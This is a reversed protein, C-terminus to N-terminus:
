PVQVGISMTLTWAISGTPHEPLAIARWLRLSWEYMPHWDHTESCLTMSFSWRALADAEETETDYDLHVWRSAPWNACQSNDTWQQHCLSSTCARRRSSPVLSKNSERAPITNRPLGWRRSLLLDSHDLTGAMRSSRISDSGSSRASTDLNCRSAWHDRSKSCRFKDTRMKDVLSPLFLLVFFFFFFHHLITDAPSPVYM